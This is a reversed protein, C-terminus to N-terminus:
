HEEEKVEWIWFFIEGVIGLEKEREKTWGVLGSFFVHLTASVSCFFISALPTVKGKCFSPLSNFNLVLHCHCLESERGRDLRWFRQTYCLPLPSKSAPSELLPSSHHFGLTWWWIPQESWGVTWPLLRRVLSSSIEQLCTLIMNLEWESLPTIVSRSDDLPNFITTCPDLKSLNGGNVVM